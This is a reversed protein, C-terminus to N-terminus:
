ALDGALEYYQDPHRPIGDVPAYSNPNLYVVGWPLATPTGYDMGDLGRSIRGIAAAIPIAPAFMDSVEWFDCDYHRCCLYAAAIGGAGAYQNRTRSLLRGADFPFCTRSCILL